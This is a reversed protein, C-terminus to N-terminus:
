YMKCGINVQEFDVISVDSFRTFDTVDIVDNQWRQQWSPVSKLCKEPTEVASNSFTFAQQVVIVEWKRWLRRVNAILCNRIWDRVYKVNGYGEQFKEYLRTFVNLMIAEQVTKAYFWHEMKIASLAHSEMYVKVMM